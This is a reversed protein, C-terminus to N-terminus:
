FQRFYRTADVPKEADKWYTPAQRDLRRELPDKGLCRLMLGIPTIVLYFVLGLLLNSLVMGIVCGVAYWLVYVPRALRPLVWCVVGLGVGALALWVPWSQWEGMKWRVLVSLVAGIVVFGCALTRGFERMEGDNPRWNVEKFPNIM